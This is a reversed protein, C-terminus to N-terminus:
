ELNKAIREKLIIEWQSRCRDTHGHREQLALHLDFDTLIKENIDGMLSPDIKDSLIKCERLTEWEIKEISIAYCDKSLNEELVKKCVEGFAEERSINCLEFLISITADKDNLSDKYLIEAIIPRNKKRGIRFYANGYKNEIFHSEPLQKILIKEPFISNIKKLLQIFDPHQILNELIEDTRPDESTYYDEPIIPEPCLTELYDILKYLYNM